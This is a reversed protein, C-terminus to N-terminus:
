ISTALDSFGATHAQREKLTSVLSDINELAVSANSPLLANGQRNERIVYQVQALMRAAELEIRFNELHEPETHTFAVPGLGPFSQTDLFSIQWPKSQIAPQRPLEQPPM